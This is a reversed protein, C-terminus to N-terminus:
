GTVNDCMPGYARSSRELLSSDRVFHACIESRNVIMHKSSLLGSFVLIEEIRVSANGETDNVINWALVDGRENPGGTDFGCEDLAVPLRSFITIVQIDFGTVAM